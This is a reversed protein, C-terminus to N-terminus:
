IVYSRSCKLKLRKWKVSSPEKWRDLNRPCSLNTFMRMPVWLTRGGELRQSSNQGHLLGSQLLHVVRPQLCIHCTSLIARVTMYWPAKWAVHCGYRDLPDMCGFSATAHTELMCLQWAWPTCLHLMLFPSFKKKCSLNPKDGVVWLVLRQFPSPKGTGQIPSARHSCNSM